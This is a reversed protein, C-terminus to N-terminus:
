KTGDYPEIRKEDPIETADKPLDNVTRALGLESYDSLMHHELLVLAIELEKAREKEQASHWGKTTLLALATGWIDQLQALHDLRRGVDDMSYTNIM